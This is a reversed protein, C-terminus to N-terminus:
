LRGGTKAFKTIEFAIDELGIVKSETCISSSNVENQKNRSGSIIVLSKKEDGSETKYRELAAEATGTEDDAPCYLYFADQLKKVIEKPLDYTENDNLGKIVNNIFNADMGSACHLLRELAVPVFTNDGLCSSVLQGRVIINYLISGRPAFSIIKDAKLGMQKAYLALAAMELTDDYPIALNIWDGLKIQEKILMHCYVSFLYTVHSVVGFWSQSDGRMLYLGHNEAIEASERCKIFKTIFHSIENIGADVGLVIVDDDQKDEMMRPYLFNTERAPYFVAIKGKTLTKVANILALAEDGASPVIILPAREGNPEVDYGYIYPKGKGTATIFYEFVMPLPRLILDFASGSPGHRMEAFYTGEQEVVFPVEGNFDEAAFASDGFLAPIGIYIEKMFKGAIFAFRRRHSLWALCLMDHDDFVRPMVEPVYLGGDEAYIDAAAYAVEIPEISGRTSIYNM